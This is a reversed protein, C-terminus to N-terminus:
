PAATRDWMELRQAGDWTVGANVLAPQNVIAAEVCVMRSYGGPELDALAAGGQAGPNWVVVDRFGTMTARLVRSGDRVQVAGPVSQYIRDVEGHIALERQEERCEVGGAATDRYTLGDLGTIRVNAIDDICLYSHLAATFTFPDDGRNTVSLAAELATATVTARLEAMFSHPWVARTETSDELRFLATGGGSQVLTWEATRAFGHKPLPGFTSFQPFIVPIGGRIAAGPAFSSAKSLFLREGGLAPTWSTVQAGHTRVEARGGEQEITVIM